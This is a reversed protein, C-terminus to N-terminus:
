KTEEHAKLFQEILDIWRIYEYQNSWEEGLMVMFESCEVIRILEKSKPNFVIWLNKANM